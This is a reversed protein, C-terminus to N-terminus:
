HKFFINKFFRSNLVGSAWFDCKRIHVQVYEQTDTLCVKSCIWVHLRAEITRLPGFISSELFSHTNSHNSSHCAQQSLIVCETSCIPGQTSSPGLPRGVAGLSLSKVSIPEECYTQLRVFVSQTQLPGWTFAAINNACRGVRTLFFWFCNSACVHM